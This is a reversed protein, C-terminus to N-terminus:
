SLSGHLKEKGVVKRKYVSIHYRATTNATTFERGETCVKLRVIKKDIYRVIYITKGLKRSFKIIMFYSSKRRGRILLIDRSCLGLLYVDYIRYKCKM